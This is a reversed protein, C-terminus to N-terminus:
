SFLPASNLFRQFGKLYELLGEGAQKKPVFPALLNLGPLRCPSIRYKQCLALYDEEIETCTQYVATTEDLAADYQELLSQTQYFASLLCRRTFSVDQCLLASLDEPDSFSYTELTSKELTKYSFFHAPSNLECAGVVDGTNLTIESGQRFASVSGETILYLSSVSKGARLFTRGEALTTSAM